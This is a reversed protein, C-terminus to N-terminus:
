FRPLRLIHPRILRMILRPCSYSSVFSCVKVQKNVTHNVVIKGPTKGSQLNRLATEVEGIGVSSIPGIPKVTKDDLLCMVAKLVRSMIKPREAALLTLDVSSFTCNQEFKAMELRTNSTIDRKGIEIFRGFSALSQWSERLLDGALSNLVVDVGKGGTAERIAPGFKIDRSYFIHNEQIGYSDVLLQKKEASGVTAYIEAGLMQALQIAAQGVGGSAAHILISEGPEIRALDFIAYYATSYVVPISAAVDFGMDDPIRTVSAASCHAYTGYAGLSMACVRDGLKLDTVGPGLRSITGSCEVGLYPSAVQGMAIVVDKFNVGTYAIRIEVENDALPSEPEDKWFLSDLAGFTGVCVKLRRGPQDFDQLYPASSQTERFIDLNMKEQEVVRPVSLKGNQETFEYDVTKDGNPPISSAKFALLILHAQDSPDLESHPDLDLTAAASNMESRLTRLLGQSINRGPHSASGYAGSTVWLVSSCTLLLRKVREFVERPMGYLVPYDLEALCIYRTLPQIEINSFSQVRPKSESQLAILNILTAVLPNVEDDDTIITIPGGYSDSVPSSIHRNIGNVELYEGNVKPAIDDPQEKFESDKAQRDRLLSVHEVHGNIQKDIHGNIHKEDANNGHTSLMCNNHHGNVTVREESAKLTQSSQEDDRCMTAHKQEGDFGMGNSVGLDADIIQLPEWQLNYCLARPAQAGETEGNVPTMRFGNLKVVPEDRGSAWADISFDVPGANGLDPCGHAVVQVMEGPQNPLSPSVDMEQIASPMYLSGMKGRGAGLIAFTLQVFLDAFAPSLISSTEHAYPMGSATDPVAVSCSSYGEHYQLNGDEKHRFASSYSAGHSQLETYFKELLISDGAFSGAKERRVLAGQLRSDNVPNAFRDKKIAILGRCHEQWGRSSTWSAIRFEDWDDSYSRTGEAYAKLSVHTEYHTGDDIILAKSAQIERLRYGALDDKQIGRLQARQSAAEIAMCIYGVLPFTTLSQMKHDRLWPVDDSSLVNRWTPEADNYSDELTGLLDHRAFPKLRHQKATRSDSWYKHDSWPYPSFDSIVAPKQLNGNKQNIAEFKLSHGATFLNGALKLTAATANENRLLSPFYKVESAAKQNIGKLIQQIPGKLASHPGIEVVVDPRTDVYLNKMASSFRVPKTLNEVWYSPGLSLTSDLKGGLLSSYFEVGDVAKPSIHKILAMYEDEVLKMHASHYAVDVHLKRNFVGRANLESSLKDVDDEDGSITVSSPSNECAVSVGNLGLLKTMRRAEQPDIGVALMGGRLDPFNVGISNAVQGRYFAIAMAEELNIAGVAYAAAIEGSSHGTVTSPQVGWSSLLDTLGLQVATCIPQSMHAKSVNTDKKSKSLEELLSFDAGIRHLYSDAAEFTAAFVPHTTLLEKGMQPWQAGQGTYVFALKPTMSTRKPLADADNLLAALEDCTSATIAIRWPLHTRREGLTYVIDRILRKQFIEPHQELYVGLQTAMIKAPAEENASLVFLRPVEDGQDGHPTEALSFQPKELVVHANSGGFGFNNISAFRKNRPWPRIATPVKIKGDALPVADNAKEFNTNPLILGKKLMLSAKIISIIGSANELHGFNTKISGMYLPQRKTRGSSFVRHITNAEIPDGVKTGTGHAEVFGTDDPSIGARSYVDRILREQAEGSPNTM